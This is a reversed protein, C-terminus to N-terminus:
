TNSFERHKERRQLKLNDLHRQLYWIAKEIDQVPNIKHRHRCIYKLANGDHFGLNWDEIVDIAEYQCGDPRYHKPHDVYEKSM